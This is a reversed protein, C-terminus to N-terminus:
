VCCLLALEFTHQAMMSFSERRVEVELSRTTGDMAAKEPHVGHNSENNRVAMNQHSATSDKGVDDFEICFYLDADSVDNHSRSNSSSEGLYNFSVEGIIDHNRRNVAKKQTSQRQAHVQSFSKTLSEIAKTHEALTTPRQNNWGQNKELQYMMEEYEELTKYDVTQCFEGISKIYRLCEANAPDSIEYSQPSELDFATDDLLHLPPKTTPPKPKYHHHQFAM